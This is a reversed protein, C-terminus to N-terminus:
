RRGCGLPQPSPRYHTEFLIVTLIASRSLLVASRDKSPRGGTWLLAGITHPLSENHGRRSGAFVHGQNPFVPQHDLFSPKRVRCSANDEKLTVKDSPHSKLLPEHNRGIPATMLPPRIIPKTLKELSLLNPNKM